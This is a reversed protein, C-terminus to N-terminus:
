HSFVVAMRDYIVTKYILSKVPCNQKRHCLGCNSQWIWSIAPQTPSGWVAESLHRAGHHPHNSPQSWSAGRGRRPTESGWQTTGGAPYSSMKCAVWPELLSHELLGPSSLPPVSGTDRQGMNPEDFIRGSELLPAMSGVHSLLLPWRNAAMKVVIPLDM